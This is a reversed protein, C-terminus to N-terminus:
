AEAYIAYHTLFEDWMKDVEDEHVDLDFSLVSIKEFMKLAMYIFRGNLVPLLDRIKGIDVINVCLARGKFSVEKMMERHLDLAESLTMNNTEWYIGYEDQYGAPMSQCEHGLKIGHKEREELNLIPMKKERVRFTQSNYLPIKSNIIFDTTFRVTEPTEGPFGVIFHTLLSIRSSTINNIATEIQQTTVQKNINQLIQGHASEIGFAAMKCGAKAMLDTIEKDQVDTARVWCDWTIPLKERIILECLEKLREKPASFVSDFISIHRINCEEVFYKWDSFIKKASKFRFKGRLHYTCFKCRFPCSRSAEYYVKKEENYIVLNWDPPPYSDLDMYPAPETVAVSNDEKRYAIGQIDDIPKGDLLARLLAPYTHEGEGIVAYDAKATYEPNIEVLPGGLIIKKHPAHSRIFGIVNDLEREDIIFTTSLSVFPSDEELTSALTNKGEESAFLALNNWKFSLGNRKLMSMLTISTCCDTEAYGRHEDNINAPFLTHAEPSDYDKRIYLKTPDVEKGKYRLPIDQRYSFAESYVGSLLITDIM